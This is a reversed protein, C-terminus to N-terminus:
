FDFLDCGPFKTHMCKVEVEIKIFKQASEIQNLKKVLM